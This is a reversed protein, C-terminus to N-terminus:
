RNRSSISRAVAASLTSKKYDSMGGVCKDITEDLLEENVKDGHKLVYRVAQLQGKTEAYEQGQGSKEM